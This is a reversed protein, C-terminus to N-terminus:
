DTMWGDPIDRFQVRVVPRLGSRSQVIAQDTLCPSLYISELEELGEAKTQLTKRPTPREGDYFTSM